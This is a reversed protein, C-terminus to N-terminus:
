FRGYYAHGVMWLFALVLALALWSFGLAIRFWRRGALRFALAGAGAATCLGLVFAKSDDLQLVLGAVVGGALGAPAAAAAMGVRAWAGAQPAAAAPPSDGAM